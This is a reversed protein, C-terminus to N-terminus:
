WGHRPVWPREAWAMFATSHAADWRQLAEVVDFPLRARWSPADYVALVFAVAARTSADESDGLWRSLAEAQFPRVGPAGRLSPFSEALASLDPHANTAAVGGRAARERTARMTALARSITADERDEGIRLAVADQVLREDPPLGDVIRKRRLRRRWEERWRQRGLQSMEDYPADRENKGDVM